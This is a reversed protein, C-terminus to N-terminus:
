GTMRTMKWPMVVIKERTKKDAVLEEADEEAQELQEESAQEREAQPNYKADYCALRQVGDKILACNVDPEEPQEQAIALSAKSLLILPLLKLSPPM